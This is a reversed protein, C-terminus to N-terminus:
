LVWGGLIQRELEAPDSTPRKCSGFTCVYAMAEGGKGRKGELVPFRKLRDESAGSPGVRLLVTHSSLKRNVVAALADADAGEGAIVVEYFPGRLLESADLWWAADLGAEAVRGGVGELAVSVEDRLAPDGTLAAIRLMVHLMVANGSPRVSDYIEFPRGLPAESGVATLHFGGDVSAFSTRARDMLERARQYWISDGTAEFLDLYGDALYALDDLIAAHEAHGDNSARLLAGGPDRHHRWIWAGAVRAAAVYRPEDFARGARALAGIALGNWGTVIKRDLGPAVRRSRADLLAPLWADVLGEVEEPELGFIGGVDAATVRVTPISKGEFNGKSTIGLAMAVPPGADPGAIAEVEQPTWVYFTGEEGGSDADFSAYFAGDPDRMERLLFDLTRRAVREYDPAGFVQAAETYLTALQANDYLMKEFHPVVWTPEVTYRHFGGGIQDQLGGDAMRDLTRRIVASLAEEGTRRYRHLLFSWRAPTPFKMRTRFGGWAPDAGDLARRVATSTADAGLAAPRLDGRAEDLVSRVKKGQERLAEPDTGWVRVVRGTLDLFQDKPIYTAGFFPELEPTLFATLPWGGNGTMAQVADMYVADIDPREERDVKISVFHENMFAAVDADEFVEHEMVHCWHCSAYGISLFIPRDLTRARSLAEDGWPYWDIPNHRHQRLYESREHELHNVFRDAPPPSTMM